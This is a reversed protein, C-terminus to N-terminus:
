GASKVRKRYLIVPELHFDNLVVRPMKGDHAFAMRIARANGPVGSEECRVDVDALVQEATLLEETM